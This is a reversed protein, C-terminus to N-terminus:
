YNSVKSQSLDVKKRRQEEIIDLFAGIRTEIGAHATHADIELYCFTQGELEQRILHGISADPGCSFCSLLCVYVDPYRAYALAREIQQTFAWVNGRHSPSGLPSLADAPVIHYGRSVIKRPIALNVDPSCTTYPRGAFIVTPENLLKNLERKSIERYKSLFSEYHKLANDFARECSSKPLGLPKSLKVFDNRMTNVLGHRLNVHPTLLEAGIKGCSARIVDAIVTTTPCTLSSKYGKECIMELANPLLIYDVEQEELDYVAGYAIRCPYCMAATSKRNGKESHRSLAANFGLENIFKTYFPFLEYATLAMPLGITGRPNAVPRPGFEEFMLKNRVVVLDTGERVGAKNHRQNDFKSCFGGFPLVKGRISFKRIECVNECSKCVFKGTVDMDGKVLEGLDYAKIEIQKKELMDIVKLANGVCGMLEPHAPVVVKRRTKAALALAVSRNLAVGGQFVINEGLGKSGIIRTAYNDAISFVLGALVNERSAGQQLANRLDTNIFAACREGFAVPADGKLALESIEEAKVNMDVSASEELFSGTGASCGENMAYDIPIGKLFSVFKSDQGGIEFLTDVDPIEEAAARSHALIENFSLCNDLYVSVMERASGTAAAQIIQIEKDGVQEILKSLGQKTAAIPNGHTRLYCSADVTRSEANFLVAKTTTSGADVGLIYSGGNAVAMGDSRRVRYDVLKDADNLPRYTDSLHGEAKLVKGPILRRKEKDESAYLCAGFADIYESEPLVIIKSTKLSDKLNKILLENKVLGGTVVVVDRLWEAMDMMNVVKKGLDNVLSFAIDAPSCEGKNLKHTADSKCHVSCLTALQVNKGSKAAELGEDLSLNMRQFQQVIFEGTGAACKTTSIINRISGDKMAYLTFTEGGLALLIDPKLSHFSLAKEICEAESRYPLDLMTKATAGTVVVHVDNKNRFVDLIEVAKKKANGEHKSVHAEIKGNGDKSVWKISIAGIEMGVSYREEQSKSKCKIAENM